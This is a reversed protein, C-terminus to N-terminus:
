KEEDGDYDVEDFLLDDFYDAVREFEDDDDITVLTADEDDDGMSELRLIVLDGDEFEDSPEAPELAFYEKGEFTSRVLLRFKIEKDNEDVLTFIDDRNEEAM